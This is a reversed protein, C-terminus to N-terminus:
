VIAATGSGEVKASNPRAPNVTMWARRRWLVNRYDNAGLNSGAKAADPARTRVIRPGPKPGTRKPVPSITKLARVTNLLPMHLFDPNSLLRSAGGLSNTSPLNTPAYVRVYDVLMRQPFSSSGNPQGPWNGGVALNLILFQPQHFVWTKGDPLNTSSTTFYQKGDVFWRIRNTEWAIAYVHFDDAFPADSSLGPGGIAHGGSYGPGHITGHVTNPEAGINEMIDIEGCAPWRVSDINAGLMWFAPWIGQGRPIKIRAEMRGFTWSWKGKTLLRASTYRKGGLNEQRAEIVLQGNEIRANNTRSTYYELENNGWGNGGLDYGWKAPDPASGDAQAFEDAWVLNWGPINQATTTLLSAWGLLLTALQVHLTKM